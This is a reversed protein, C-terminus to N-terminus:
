LTRPCTYVHLTTQPLLHEMKAGKEFHFKSYLSEWDSIEYQAVDGGEMGGEGNESNANIQYNAHLYLAYM